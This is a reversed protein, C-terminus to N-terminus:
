CPPTAAIRKHPGTRKSARRPTRRERKAVAKIMRALQQGHALQDGLERIFGLVLANDEGAKVMDRVIWSLLPPGVNFKLFPLVLRAWKRGQNYDEQYNGSATVCWCGGPHANKGRTRRRVFPLADIKASLNPDFRGGFIPAYPNCFLDGGVLTEPQKPTASRTRSKARRKATRKVIAKTPM